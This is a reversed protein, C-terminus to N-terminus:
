SSPRSRRRGSAGGRATTRGIAPGPNSSSRLAPRGPPRSGTRRPSGGARRVGRNAAAPLGLEWVSLVEGELRRRAVVRRSGGIARWTRALGRRRAEPVTSPVILYARGRDALHDPLTALIRGIVASGDPGGDLALNVWPDPDREGPGTPLYPPNALIREFRGLGGALDTRIPSIPLREAAARDRLRRLAEPHLDTAVVSWGSRAAEISAQGDGCGIELLWGTAPARAFPILLFTDERPPYVSRASAGAGGETGVRSMGPESSPPAKKNLPAM